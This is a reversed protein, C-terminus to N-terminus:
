PEGRRREEFVRGTSPPSCITLWRAHTLGTNRYCHVVGRPALVFTGPRAPVVITGVEFTIEGELVYFAEDENRHVHPRAGRGGPPTSFERLSYAGSTDEATAKWVVQGGRPSAPVATGEGFSLM